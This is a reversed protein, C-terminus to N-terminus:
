AAYAQPVYQLVKQVGATRDYDEQEEDDFLEPEQLGSV